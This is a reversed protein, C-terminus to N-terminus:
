KENRAADRNRKDEKKRERDEQERRKDLVERTRPPGSYNEVHTLTPRYNSVRWELEFTSEEKREDAAPGTVVRFGNVYYKGTDDDHVIKRPDFKTIIRDRRIELVTSEINNITAAHIDPSLLPEIGKKLFEANAPTVNGLMMAISWSWAEYYAQNAGSKSIELTTMIEPPVVVVTSSKFTLNLGLIGTTAMMGVVVFKLFKNERATGDWSKMLQNLQM